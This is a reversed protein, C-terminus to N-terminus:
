VAQLEYCAWDIRIVESYRRHTTDRRRERTKDAEAPYIDGPHLSLM